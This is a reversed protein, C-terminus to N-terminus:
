PATAVDQPTLAPVGFPRFHKTNVTVITLEHVKAIAAITADAMGPAHGAAIAKAELQGALAATPTDVAIIKDGYSGILGSLWVKLEAAKARAGKHELLAIGKEIEHITVVSLFLLGDADVRELWALFEPSAASRAPAVLSVVNTDILFGSL